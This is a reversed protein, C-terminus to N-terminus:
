KSQWPKQKATLVIYFFLCSLAIVFGYMKVTQFFLFYKSYDQGFPGYDQRTNDVIFFRGYEKIVIPEGNMLIAKGQIDKDELEWWDTQGTADGATRIFGENIASIRHTVPHSTDPRDFMVIDGPKYTHELNQMLVLDNRSFTPNMSGSSVATFFVAKSALLYMILVATFLISVEIFIIKQSDEPTRSVHKVYNNIKLKRDFGSYTRRIPEFSDNNYVVRRYLVALFLIILILFLIGDIPIYM